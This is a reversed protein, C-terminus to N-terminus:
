TFLQCHLARRPCPAASEASRREARRYLVGRGGEVVVVEMEVEVCGCLLLLCCPRVADETTLPAPQARASSEDPAAAWGCMEGRLRAGSEPESKQEQVAARRDPGSAECGGRLVTWERSAPHIIPSNRVLALLFSLSPIQRGAGDLSSFGSNHVFMSPVDRYRGITM